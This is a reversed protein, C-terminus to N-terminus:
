FVSGTQKIRGRGENEVKTFVISDFNVFIFKGRYDFQNEIWIKNWNKEQCEM